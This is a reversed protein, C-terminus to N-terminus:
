KELNRLAVYQTTVYEMLGWVGGERGFGSWKVGGFPARANSPVFDPGDWLSLDSDWPAADQSWNSMLGNDVPGFAAHNLNPIERFSVTKDVWNWVMAKNCSTSGISPYCVFIENFFPNKFVFCKDFNNVDISQFM